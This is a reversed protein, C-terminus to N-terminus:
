KKAVLSIEKEAIQKRSSLETPNVGSRQLSLSLESKRDISLDVSNTIERAQVTDSITNKYLHKNLHRILNAKLHSKDCDFGLSDVRIDNVLVLDNADIDVTNVTDITRNIDVAKIFGRLLIYDTLVSIQKWMM